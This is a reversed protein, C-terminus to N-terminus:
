GQSIPEQGSTLGSNKANDEEKADVLRQVDVAMDNVFRAFDHWKAMLFDCNEPSYPYPKEKMTFGEWGKVSARGLLRNFKTADFKEVQRHSSDWSITMAKQSLRSIEEPSVYGLTVFTGKVFSIRATFDEQQLINLDMKEGKRL